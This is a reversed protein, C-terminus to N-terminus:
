LHQNQLVYVNLALPKDLALDETSIHPSCTGALISEGSGWRKTVEDITVSAPAIVAISKEGSLQHLQDDMARGGALDVVQFGSAHKEAGALIFRPPMYTKYFVLPTASPKFLTYDVNCKSWFAFSLVLNEQGGESLELLLPVLGGQHLIGFFVALLINFLIWISKWRSKFINPTFLHLPVLLPLLFRPEQHPAMSICLLPFLVCSGRWLHQIRDNTTSGLAHALFAFYLPGFLMPMNVMAHTIRPHVGHLQLNEYQLNYIFNNWPAIVLQQIDYSTVEGRFYVTDLAIIGISCVAFALLGQVGTWVVGCLRRWTPASSSVSKKRFTDVLIADQRRVLELGLPFFFFPFTFRTFFGFALLSGLLLTQVHFLGFFFRIHPNFCLLTTMCAALHITECTNSFPRSMFILTTWASAFSLVVGFRNKLRLAKACRYLALDILFSVACLLLRPTLLLVTGTMRVGWWQLLKYPLGAVLAPFFVSRNPTPLEYEWPLHLQAHLSPDDDELEHRAMVEQSQFFEDPHIMGLSTVALFVRMMGLSMYMARRRGRSAAPSPTREKRKTLKAM